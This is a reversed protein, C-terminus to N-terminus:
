KELARVLRCILSGIQTSYDISRRGNRRWDESLPFEVNRGPQRPGDWLGDPGRNDCFWDILRSAIEPHTSLRTMVKITHFWWIFDRDTISKPFLSPRSRLYFQKVQENWIAKFLTQQMEVPILRGCSGILELNPASSVSIYSGSIDVGLIKLSASREEEADYEGSQLTRRYIEYMGEWADLVRPNSADITSLTAATFIKVGPAFWKNKEYGDSWRRRDSIVEEMYRIAASMLSNRSDIGLEVGRNIAVQTTPIKQKRKTDETHFRGWSGDSHQEERMLQVWKSKQAATQSAGYEGSDPSTGLLDRLILFRPIPDPNMSLLHNGLKFTDPARRLM